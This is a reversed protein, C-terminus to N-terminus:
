KRIRKGQQTKESDSELAVPKHARLDFESPRWRISGGAGKGSGLKRVRIYLGGEDEAVTGVEYRKSHETSVFQNPSNYAAHRTQRVGIVDGVKVKRAGLPSQDGRSAVRIHGRSDTYKLHADEWSTKSTIPKLQIYNSASPGAIDSASKGPALRYGKIGLVGRAIEEIASPKQAKADRAAVRAKAAARGEDVAKEGALWTAAPHKKGTVRTYEELAAGLKVLAYARGKSGRRHKDAEEQLGDIAFYGHDKENAVIKKAHFEAVAQRGKESSPHIAPGPSVGGPRVTGSSVMPITLGADSGREQSAKSILSGHTGPTVKPKAPEGLVVRNPKGSKGTYKATQLRKATSYIRDASPVSQGGGSTSQELAIAKSAKGAARYAAKNADSRNHGSLDHERAIAAAPGIALSISGAAHKRRKRASVLAAKKQAARQAASGWRRKPM